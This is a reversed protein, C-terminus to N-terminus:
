NTLKGPLSSFRSLRVKWISHLKWREVRYNGALGTTPSCSCPSSAQDEWCMNSHNQLSNFVGMQLKSETRREERPWLIYAMLWWRHTVALMQNSTQDWSRSLKRERAPTALPTFAHFSPKHLPTSCVDCSAYNATLLRKSSWCRAGQSLPTDAAISERWAALSIKLKGWVDPRLFTGRGGISVMRWGRVRKGKM